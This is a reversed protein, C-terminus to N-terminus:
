YHAFTLLDELAERDAPRALRLDENVFHMVAGHALAADLLRARFRPDVPLAFVSYLVVNSKLTDVIHSLTPLHAMDDLEFLEFEYAVGRRRCYDLVMYRQLHVPAGRTGPTANNLYLVTPLGNPAVATIGDAHAEPGDSLVRFYGGVPKRALRDGFRAEAVRFDISVRTKGTTNVFNGHIHEQNFLVMRGPGASLPWSEAAFRAQMETVTLQEETAERILARSRELGVIHMSASADEPASVETLPLWLSRSAPGHGYNLGTHFPFVSRPRDPPMIRVNLFRQVAVPAVLRGKPVVESRLFDDVLRRMEPRRTDACLQKTLAYIGPGDLRRHLETLADVAHGHARVRELVWRDFPFRERDYAVVRANWTTRLSEELAADLETPTDPTGM